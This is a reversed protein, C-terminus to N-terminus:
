HDADSGTVVTARTWVGSGDVNFKKFFVLM